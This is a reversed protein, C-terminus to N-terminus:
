TTLDPMLVDNLYPIVTDNLVRTFLAFSIVCIGIMLLPLLVQLLASFVRHKLGSFWSVNTLEYDIADVLVKARPPVMVVIQYVLFIELAYIGLGFILGVLGQTLISAQELLPQIIVTIVDYSM